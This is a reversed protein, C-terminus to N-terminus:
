TCLHARKWYSKYIIIKRDTGIIWYYQAIVVVLLELKWRRVFWLSVSSSKSLLIPARLLFPFLSPKNSHKLLVLLWSWVVVLIAILVELVTTKQEKKRKYNHAASALLLFSAATAMMTRMWLAWWHLLYKLQQTNCMDCFCVLDDDYATAGEAWTLTGHPMKQRKWLVLPLVHMPRTHATPEM